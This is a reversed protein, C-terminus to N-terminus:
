LDEEQYLNGNADTKLLYVDFGGVGFSDTHGTIIYGGDLTQQVSQGGDGSSGGYTQTWLTDGSPDTKILYVDSNGAGFSDTHGAIIYGGDLTQQVSYGGDRDSGGYTQTWRTSGDQTNTGKDCGQNVTILIGFSVFLLIRIAKM